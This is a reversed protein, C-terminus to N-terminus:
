DIIVIRGEVEGSLHQNNSWYAEIIDLCSTAIVRSAGNKEVEALSIGFFDPMSLFHYHQIGVTYVKDDEIEFGNLTLKTIKDESKSYTAHLGKSYQYFEAHEGSSNVRFIHTLMRRLQEGAVKILHISDDYPYTETLDEFTVVPGLQTKRISGSAMLMIDIALSEQLIDAFMNGLETEQYRSPHLLQKAFRTIFRAYKM